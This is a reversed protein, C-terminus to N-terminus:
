AKEEAVRAGVGVKEVVVRGSGLDAVVREVEALEHGSRLVFHRDDARVGRYEDVTVDFELDCATLACECMVTFSAPEGGRFEGEEDLRRENMERYRAENAALRREDDNDM